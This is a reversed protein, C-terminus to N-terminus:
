QEIGPRRFSFEVLSTIDSFKTIGLYQRFYSTSNNGLLYELKGDFISMKACVTVWKRGSALLTFLPLQLLTDDYLIISTYGTIRDEFGVIVLM